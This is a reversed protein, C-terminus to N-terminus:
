TKMKLSSFEIVGTGGVRRGMDDFSDLRAGVATAEVMTTGIIVKVPYRGGAIVADSLLQKADTLPMEVEIKAVAGSYEHIEARCGEKKGQTRELHKM